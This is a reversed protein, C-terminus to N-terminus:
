HGHPIDCNNQYITMSDSHLLVETSLTTELEFKAIDDRISRSFLYGLRKALQQQIANKSQTDSNFDMKDVAKQLARMSFNEIRSEFETFIAPGQQQKIRVIDELNAYLNFMGVAGQQKENCAGGEMIRVLKLTKGAKSRTLGAISSLDDTSIATVSVESDFAKSSVKDVPQTSCASLMASLLSITVKTKINM